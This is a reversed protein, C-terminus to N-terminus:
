LLLSYSIKTEIEIPFGGSTEGYGHSHTRPVSYKPSVIPPPDEAKPNLSEIFREVAPTKFCPNGHMQVVRLSPIQHLAEPIEDLLNNQLLLTHLVLPKNDKSTIIEETKNSQKLEETKNTQDM